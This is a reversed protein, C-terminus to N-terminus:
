QRLEMTENESLIILTSIISKSFQKMIDFLSQSTTSATPWFGFFDERIVIDDDVNRLCFSIQEVRSLDMTEDM